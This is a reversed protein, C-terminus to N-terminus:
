EGILESNFSFLSTNTIRTRKVESYITIYGKKDLSKIVNKIENLTYPTIISNKSMSYRDIYEAWGNINKTTRLLKKNNSLM